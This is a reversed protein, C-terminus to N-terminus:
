FYEGTVVLPHASENHHLILYRLLWTYNDWSNEKTKVMCVVEIDVYLSLLQEM